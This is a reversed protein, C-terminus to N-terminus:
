KINPHPFLIKCLINLWLFLSVEVELSLIYLLNLFIGTNYAYKFMNLSLLNM